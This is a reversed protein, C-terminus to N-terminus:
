VCGHDTHNGRSEVVPEAVSQSIRIIRGKCRTQETRETLPHGEPLPQHIGELRVHDRRLDVVIHGVLDLKHFFVEVHVDRDLIQVFIEREYQGVRVM